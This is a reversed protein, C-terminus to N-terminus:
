ATVVPNGITPNQWHARWTQGYLLRFLQESFLFPSYRLALNNLPATRSAAPMEAIARLLRAAASIYQVGAPQSERLLAMHFDALEEMLPINQKAIAM